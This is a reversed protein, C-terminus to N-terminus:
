FGIANEQLGAAVKRLEEPPLEGQVVIVLEGRRFRVIRGRVRQEQVRPGKGLKTKGDMGPRQGRFQRRPRDGDQALGGKARQKARAGPPRGDERARDDRGVGRKTRREASGPKGAKKGGESGSRREPPRIQLINLPHLGDSYRLVVAKRKPNKHLYYGRFEFGEPLYEPQIPEQKLIKAAQQKDIRFVGRPLSEPDEARKVSEPPQVGFAVEDYVTSSVLRGRANYRDMRLPFDTRRDAWIELRAGAQNEPIVTVKMTARGAVQGGPQTTVEMKRGLKLPTDV